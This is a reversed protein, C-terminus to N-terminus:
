FDGNKDYIMNERRSIDKKYNRKKSVEKIDLSEMLSLEKIIKVRLKEQNTLVAKKWVFTYKNAYAEIKTGDIYLSSLDIHGEELLVNVNQEFVDKILPELKQRYRNITAHDPAIQGNLLYKVIVGKKDYTQCSLSPGVM